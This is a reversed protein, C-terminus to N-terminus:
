SVEDNVLPKEMTMAMMMSLHPRQQRRLPHRHQLQLLRKHQQQQLPRRQQLPLPPRHQRQLPSRLQRRLQRMHQLQLPQLPPRHQLQPLQLLLKLPQQLQPPPQSRLQQQQLKLNVVTAEMGMAVEATEVTVEQNAEMVTGMLIVGQTVEM